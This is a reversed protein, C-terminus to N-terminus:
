RAVHELAQEVPDLVHREHAALHRPLRVHEHAHVRLAQGAVHEPRQAAVAPQLEVLRELLDRGLALADDDVQAAVLAAPDPEAVLQPRVRQLVLTAVRDLRVLVEAERGVRALVADARLDEDVEAIVVIRSIVFLGAM